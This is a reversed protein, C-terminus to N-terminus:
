FHVISYLYTQYIVLINWYLQVAKYLITYYICTIDNILIHKGNGKELRGNCRGKEMAKLIFIFIFFVYVPGPVALRALCGPLLVQGEGFGSSRSVVKADSWMLLAADFALLM